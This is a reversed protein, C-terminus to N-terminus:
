SVGQSRSVVRVVGKDDRYLTTNLRFHIAGIVAEAQLLFYSSSVGLRSNDIKVGALDPDGLFDDLSAFPRDTRAQIIAQARGEDLGLAVLVEQDATNVNILSGRPLAVLHPALVQFIEDTVGRAQRLEGLSAIQANAARYPIELAGYYDDEAGSAGSPETDPDIWDILAPIIEQPVKLRQFLRMFRGQGVPDVKVGDAALLNNPDLRGNLDTLLASITGGEVKIPPLATAWEEALNDSKGKAADRELLGIAWAEAGLTYQMAQDSFLLNGTRHIDLNQREAITVAVLTAITVILMVTILAVGSQRLPARM